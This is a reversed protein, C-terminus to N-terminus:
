PPLMSLDTGFPLSQPIPIQLTLSLTQAPWLAPLSLFEWPEHGRGAPHGPVCTREAVVLSQSIQPLARTQSRLLMPTYPEPKAALRDRFCQCPLSSLSIAFHEHRRRRLRFGDELIGVM